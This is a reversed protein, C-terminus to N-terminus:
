TLAAPDAGLITEEVTDIILERLWRHGPDNQFRQHWILYTTVEPLEIPPKHARLAVYERARRAMTLPATWILDSTAVIFPASVFHPIRLAVRRSHGRQALVEDVVGRSGGDPSVLLHPAAVYKRLTLRKGVGPHDPRALVVFGERSVRRRQLGATDDVHPRVAMDIDGASLRASLDPRPPQMVVQVNPATAALRRMVQPLLVFEGYDVGSVVFRRQSRVPDFDDRARIAQALEILAARLPGALGQARETLVLGGQGSVLLPDDFHARLHRLKHSMASQSVGVRRAARTVNREGLLADLAPLLNLDLASLGATGNSNSM